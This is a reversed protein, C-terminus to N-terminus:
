KFFNDNLFFLQIVFYLFCVFCYNNKRQGRKSRKNSSSAVSISATASEEGLTHQLHEGGDLHLRIDRLEDQM